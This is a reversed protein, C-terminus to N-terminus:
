LTGANFAPVYSKMHVTWGFMVPVSVAPQDAPPRALRGRSSSRLVMAWCASPVPIITGRLRANNPSSSASPQAHAPTLANTQSTIMM